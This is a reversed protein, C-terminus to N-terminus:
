YMEVSVMTTFSIFYTTTPCKILHRPFTWFYVVDSQEGKNLTEAFDNVTVILQSEAQRFGHQQDCLISHHSLHIFIHSYLIHELIMISCICTLSVAHGIIVLLLVIVRRLFPYVIYAKKWDTPLSCQHLSAQYILTLSPALLESTEKLLWYIHQFKMLGPM